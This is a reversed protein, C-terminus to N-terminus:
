VIDRHILEFGDVGAFGGFPFGNVALSHVRFCGYYKKHKVVTSRIKGQFLQIDTSLSRFITKDSVSKSFDLQKATEINSSRTKGYEGWPPNLYKLPCKRVRQHKRQTKQLTICWQTTRRLPLTGVSIASGVLSAWDDLCTNMSVNCLLSKESIRSIQTLKPAVAERNWWVDQPWFRYENGQSMLFIILVAILQM